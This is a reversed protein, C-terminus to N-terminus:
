KYNTTNTPGAQYAYGLSMAVLHSAEHLLYYTLHCMIDCIM